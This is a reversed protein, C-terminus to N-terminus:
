EDDFSQAFDREKAYGAQHGRAHKGEGRDRQAREQQSRDGLPAGGVFPPWWEIAELVAELASFFAFLTTKSAASSIARRDFNLM